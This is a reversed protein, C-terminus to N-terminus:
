WPQEMSGQCRECLVHEALYHANQVNFSSVSARVVAININHEMNEDVGTWHGDRGSMNILMNDRM